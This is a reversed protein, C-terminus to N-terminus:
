ECPVHRVRPQRPTLRGSPIGYICVMAPASRVSRAHRASEGSEAKKCGSAWKRVVLLIKGSRFEKEKKGTIQSIQKCGNNERRKRILNHRYRDRTNSSGSESNREG